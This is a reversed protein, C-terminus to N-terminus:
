LREDRTHVALVFMLKLYTPCLCSVKTSKHKDNKAKQVMVIKGEEFTALAKVDRGDPTTWDFEENM